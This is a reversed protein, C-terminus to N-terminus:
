RSGAAQPTLHRREPEREGDRGDLDEAPEARRVNRPQALDADVRAHERERERDREDRADHEPEHRRQARRPEVQVVHQALAPAAAHSRAREAEAVLLKALQEDGASIASDSTSSM